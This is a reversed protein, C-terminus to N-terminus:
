TLLGKRVIWEIWAKRQEAGWLCGNFPKLGEDLDIGKIRDVLYSRTSKVLYNNFIGVRERDKDEKIFDVEMCIDMIALQKSYSAGLELIIVELNLHRILMNLVMELDNIEITEMDEPCITPKIFYFGNMSEIFVDLDLVEGLKSEYFLDSLTKSRRSSFSKGMSIFVELNIYLVRKTLAMAEALSLAYATKYEYGSLSFIGRILVEDNKFADDEVYCKDKNVKKNFEIGRGKDIECILGSLPGYKFVEDDSDIYSEMDTLKIFRAISIELDGSYEELFCKVHEIFDEPAILLQIHRGKMYTLLLDRDSFASINFEGSLRDELGRILHKLFNEDSDLIVIEKYTDM